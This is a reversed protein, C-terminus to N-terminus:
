VAVAQPAEEPAPESPSRPFVKANALTAFAVEGDMLGSTQDNPVEAVLVQGDELGLQLKSMWGLNTRRRVSVPFSM